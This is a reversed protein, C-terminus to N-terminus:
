VFIVSVLLMFWVHDPDQDLSYKLILLDHMMYESELAKTYGGQFIYIRKLVYFWTM